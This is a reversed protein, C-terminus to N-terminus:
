SYSLQFFHCITTFDITNVLTNKPTNSIPGKKVAKLKIFERNGGGM